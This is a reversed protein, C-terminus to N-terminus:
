SLPEREELQGNPPRAFEGQWKGAITRLWEPYSQKDDPLDTPEITVRVNRDADAEGVPIALHLVGDSGVRSNLIM